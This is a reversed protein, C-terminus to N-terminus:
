SAKIPREPTLYSSLQRKLLKHMEHLPIDPHILWRYTVGDLTASFLEALVNAKLDKRISGDTQGAEIWRQADRKQARHTRAVDARYDASPDISSYRLSYMARIENPSEVLFDRLADTVRLLAALGTAKGVTREVRAIWDAVATNYVQALLGAKSGYRHTVLGRSYGSREGIAALTTGPIGAEVILSIAAALMRQDSLSSREEQTRRVAIPTAM